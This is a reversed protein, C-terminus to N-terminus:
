VHHLTETPFVIFNVLWFRVDEQELIDLAKPNAYGSVHDSSGDSVM